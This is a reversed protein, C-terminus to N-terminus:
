QRGRDAWQMAHRHRQEAKIVDWGQSVHHRAIGGPSHRIDTRLAWAWTASFVGSLAVVGGAAAWGLGKDILLMVVLVAVAVGFGVGLASTRVFFAHARQVAYQGDDHAVIGAPLEPLTLPEHQRTPPQREPLAPVYNNM